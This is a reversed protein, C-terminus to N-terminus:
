VERALALGWVSSAGAKKLAIACSNLTAGTTCVDDILLIRGGKLKEDRCDFAGLVNSQREESDFTKVQARSNRHRFLMDEVVPIATLRCLEQALLGSQNYGRERLRRPHLPVPVLVEAPLPKNKLQQTLLQALPLALAKFGGYKFRHIAQRLVGQFAFPTCIADIDLKLRRCSSCWEEQVLPRGCTPCLPPLLRPLGARCPACIYNGEKGCGVCRPPFLLDLLKGKVEDLRAQLVVSQTLWSVKVRERITCQDM